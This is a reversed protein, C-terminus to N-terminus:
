QVIVEKPNYQRIWSPRIMRELLDILAVNIPVRYAEDSYTYTVTIGSATASMSMGVLAATLFNVPIDQFYNLTFSVTHIPRLNPQALQQLIGSGLLSRIYTLDRNITYTNKSGMNLKKTIPIDYSFDKADFRFGFGVDGSTASQCEEYKEYYIKLGNELRTTLLGMNSIVSAGGLTTAPIIFNGQQGQSTQNKAAVYDTRGIGKIDMTPHAYGLTAKRDSWVQNDFNLHTILSTIDPATYILYQGNGIKSFDIAQSGFMGEILANYSIEVYSTQADTLTFVNDYGRDSEDKYFLRSGQIHIGPYTDGISTTPVYSDGGPPLVVSQVTIKHKAADATTLDFIQGQSEDYWAFDQLSEIFLMEKSLYWRGAIKDGYDKYLQYNADLIKQDLSAIGDGLQATYAIETGNYVAPDIIKWGCNAQATGKCYNYLFWVKPGHMAACVQDMDITQQTLNFEAGVQYLTLEAISNNTSSTTSANIEGGTQAFHSYVTKGYTNTITEEDVYELADAPIAPFTLNVKTPDFIKLVGNEIFYSFNYFRCWEELVGKFTGTYPKTFTDDYAATMIVGIRQRLINLFDSFHYEIDPLQTFNRIQQATPDLAAQEKQAETRNDVPVGLQYVNLGCGRGKLAIMYRELRFTDDVFEVTLVRQNTKLHKAARVPYLGFSAGGIRILAKVPLPSLPVKPYIGSENVFSITIRVGEQPTYNYNLDYILGLNLSCSVQPLSKIM